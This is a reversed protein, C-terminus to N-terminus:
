GIIGLIEDELAHDSFNRWRNQNRHGGYNSIFSKTGKREGGGKVTFDVKKGEENAKGTGIAVV